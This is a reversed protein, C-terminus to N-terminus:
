KLKILKRTIIINAVNMQCFYVGSSLHKANFEIEYEGENKYQDVLTSIENGLFDYVRISVYTGTPLSYRIKTVPNFPNPYNQNLIYDNSIIEKDQVFTPNDPLAGGIWKLIVGDNGVAWGTSSNVFDVDTLFDSIDTDVSSWNNGGDISLNATPYYEGGRYPSVAILSSSTAFSIGRTNLFFTNTTRWTLGGDNTKGFNSNSVFVGYSENLFDFSNIAGTFDDEIETVNWTLGKNTSFFIRVNNGSSNQTGFWVSSGKIAMNNVVGYEGSSNPALIEPSIVRTWSEGGDETTYVAFYGDEPDGYFIGSNEDFFKVDNYWADVASSTYKMVWSDGGDSTKYLSTQSNASSYTVVWALNENQADMGYINLNDEPLSKLTWSNGGDETKVVVGSRGAAWVINTDVAVMTEFSQVTGSAELAWFDQALISIQASLFYMIIISTMKMFLEGYLELIRLSNVTLAGDWPYLTSIFQL